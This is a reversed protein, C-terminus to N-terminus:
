NNLLIFHIFTLIQTKLTRPRGGSSMVTGLSEFRKRASGFFDEILWCPNHRREDPSTSSFRAIGSPFSGIYYTHLFRTWHSKFIAHTPYIWTSLSIFDATRGPSSTPEAAYAIFHGRSRKGQWPEHSNSQPPSEFPMYLRTRIRIQVPIKESLNPSLAVEVGILFERATQSRHLGEAHLCLPIISLVFVYPITPHSQM